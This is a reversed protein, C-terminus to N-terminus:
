TRSARFLFNRTGLNAACLLYERTDELRKQQPRESVDNTESAVLDSMDLLSLSEFEAEGLSVPGLGGKCVLWRGPRVAVLKIAEGVVRLTLGLAM